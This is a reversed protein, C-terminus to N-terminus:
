LHALLPRYFILTLTDNQPPADTDFQGNGIYPGAGTGARCDMVIESCPRVRPDAGM